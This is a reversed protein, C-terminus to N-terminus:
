IGVPDKHRSVDVAAAEAAATPAPAAAPAYKPSTVKESLVIKATAKAHKLYEAAAQKNRSNRLYEEIMPKARELTLPVDQEISTVSMLLVKDENQQNIFLDGVKANAFASLESLPLREPAVSIMQTVYKIAHADLVGRVQDVSKVQDLKERVAATMDSKGTEFTTLRFTKRNAFLLPEKRYYDAVEQATVVTKPYVSREAFFQALLQRRSQELAQVFAPDRDIKAKLAAQVLLEESTLADLARKTVESTVESAGTSQLVRNLQMVTIEEDNVTAVVQSSKGDSKGGCASVATMLVLCTLLRNASWRKTSPATDISAVNM